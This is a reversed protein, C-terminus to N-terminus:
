IPMIRKLIRIGDKIVRLLLLREEKSWGTMDVSRELILMPEKCSQFLKDYINTVFSSDGVFVEGISCALDHIINWFDLMDEAIIDLDINWNLIYNCAIVTHENSITMNNENAYTLMEEYDRAIFVTNEKTYFKDIEDSYWFTFFSHQNFLFEVIYYEM